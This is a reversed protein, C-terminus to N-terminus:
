RHSVVDLRVVQRPLGDIEVEVLVQGASTRAQVAAVV